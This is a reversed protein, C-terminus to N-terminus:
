SSRCFSHNSIMYIHDFIHLSAIRRTGVYKEEIQEFLRDIVTKLAKSDRIFIMRIIFWLIGSAGVMVLIRYWWNLENGFLSGSLIMIQIFILFIWTIESYKITVTVQTQNDSSDSLRIHADSTFNSRQFMKARQTIIFEDWSFELSYLSDPEFKNELVLDKKSLNKMTQTLVEKNQNIQFNYTEKFLM